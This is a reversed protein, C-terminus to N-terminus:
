RYLIWENDTKEPVTPFRPFHKSYLPRRGFLRRDELFTYVTYVIQLPKKCKGSVHEGLFLFFFVFYGIAACEMTLPRYTVIHISVSALRFVRCMYFM